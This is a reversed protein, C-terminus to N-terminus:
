EEYYGDEELTPLFQLDTGILEDYENESIDEDHHTYPIGLGALCIFCTDLFTKTEQHKNVTEEVTLRNNCCACRM